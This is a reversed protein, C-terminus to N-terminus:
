RRRREQEFLGEALGDGFAADAIVGGVDGDAHGDVVRGAGVARPWRRPGGAGRLGDFPRRDGLVFPEADAAREGRDAQGLLDALLAFGLALGDAEERGVAVAGGEVDDGLAGLDAAAALAEDDARAVCGSVLCGIRPM